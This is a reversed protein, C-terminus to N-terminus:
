RRKMGLISVFFSSLITQFGLATLTVGPIVWRMTHSYDLDGFRVSWWQMVAAVLLGLGALFSVVGALLGRELYMVDFFRKMAANEPMLGENVAFTKAFIAFLVSQYGLLVALSAFLLTHADFRIGHIQTGSLVVGYGVAGLLMLALGPYLFLWRPSFILFFRLTRWGDRFTKLHPAHAKRGDQHLTIPTEAIKAGRISAKIIMETAFEMGECRLDLRQYLEKTFARLGCYVDNIPSSFMHRAMITFMPNGIWRHSWPMAGPMVRGGGGSLRCGMVLENGERLKKVFGEIESFDYSDDADGMIVWNARAAEIGGKLANGYGKLKVPVVRAGLKEAIEISGDTSGNDAILIEGKIGARELGLQAKRICAAVTDAENLCPM